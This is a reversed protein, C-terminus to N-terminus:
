YRGLTPSLETLIRDGSSLLVIRLLDKNLRRYFPISERMLGNIAGATEVGAFGGGVVAATLLAKREDEDPHSGAVELAETVRNRLLIAHGLTKMTLAHEAMGPTRHFNPVAGMALVLWDYQTDFSEGLDPQLLRVRKRELDISLIEVLAIRTRRLMKRL